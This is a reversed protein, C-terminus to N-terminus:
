GEEIDVLMSPRVQDRMQVLRLRHRQGEEDLEGRGLQATLEAISRTLRQEYLRWYQSRLVAPGHLGSEAEIALRVFFRGVDTDGRAHRAIAAQPDASGLAERLAEFAERHVPDSFADPALEDMLPQAEAPNCVAAVLFEREAVVEPSLVRDRLSAARSSAPQRTTTAGESAARREGGGRTPVGRGGTRLLLAMNEPSLRLRDAITRIQEEREKPTARSLIEGVLEFARVRGDASALDHKDLVRTIEFALL